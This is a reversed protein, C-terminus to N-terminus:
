KKKNIKNIKQPLLFLCYHIFYIYFFLYCLNLWLDTLLNYYALCLFALERHDGQPYFRFSCIEDVNMTSYSSSTLPEPPQPSSLFPPFQDVPSSDCEPPLLAAATSCPETVLSWPLGPQEKKFIKWLFFKSHRWQLSMIFALSSLHTKARVQGSCLTPM